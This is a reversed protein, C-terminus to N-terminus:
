SLAKLIKWYYGAILTAKDTGNVIHRAEIPDNELKNFSDILRAGTFMGKQMGIVLIEAAVKPQLALEPHYLIDIGLLKSFSKYNVRWTLQVFGRGYFIKDPETYAVRKNPGGGMDLKQGYPYGKGKGIEEIPKFRSEHYATVLIYAIHRPDSILHNSCAALIAEISDVQIQTLTPTITRIAAYLKEKNMYVELNYYVAGVAFVDVRM